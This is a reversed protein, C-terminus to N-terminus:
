YASVAMKQNAEYGGAEAGTVEEQMYEDGGGNNAEYFFKKIREKIIEFAEREEDTKLESPDFKAAGIIAGAIGGGLYNQYAGMVAESSEDEGIYPFLSSVDIKLTGGRYSIDGDLINSEIDFEQAKKIINM